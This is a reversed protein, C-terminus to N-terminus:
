EEVLKLTIKNDDLQLVVYDIGIEKVTFGSITQGVNLLKDNIMCCWKNADADARVISFLRFDSVVKRSAPLVKNQGAPVALDIGGQRFPNKSLQDLSVQKVNAFEYFKKVITDMKNSM